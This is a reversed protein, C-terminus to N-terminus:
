VVHGIYIAKIAANTKGERMYKRVADIKDKYPQLEAVQEKLREIESAQEVKDLLLTQITDTTVPYQSNEEDFGAVMRAEMNDRIQTIFNKLREIEAEQVGITSNLALAEDNTLRRALETKLQEIRSRLEANEQELQEYGIIATRESM